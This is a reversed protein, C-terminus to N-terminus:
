SGGEQLQPAWVRFTPSEGSSQAPQRSRKRVRGLELRKELQRLHRVRAVGREELARDLAKSLRELRRGLRARAGARALMSSAPRRERWEAGKTRFANLAQRLAQESAVRHAEYETARQAAAASVPTRRAAVSLTEAWRLEGVRRRLEGLSERLAVHSESQRRKLSQNAGLVAGAVERAARFEEARMGPAAVLSEASECSPARGALGAPEAAAATSAALAVLLTGLSTPFPAGSSPGRRPHSERQRNGRWDRFMWFM